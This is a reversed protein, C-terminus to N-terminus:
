APPKVSYTSLVSGSALPRTEKLALSIRSGRKFFPTGQGLVVPVTCFMLEDVLGAELLSHTLDASGFVYLTKTEVDKLRKLEPVIDATVRSNNWDVTKLTSSAVLKPLANMYTTIKGPEATKWYSAMGEYTVRGFVLSAAKDGFEESLRELEPGWALNHFDLDWKKAGEFYGDVTILNWGILKAM